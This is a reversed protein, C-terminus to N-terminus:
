LGRLPDATGTGKEGDDTVDVPLDSAEEAEARRAQLDAIDAALDHLSELVPPACVHALGDMAYRHGDQSVWVPTGCLCEM